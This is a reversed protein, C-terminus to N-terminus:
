TWTYLPNFLVCTIPVKIRNHRWFAELQLLNFVKGICAIWFSSCNHGPQDQKGSFCMMHNGPYFLDFGKMTKVELNFCMMHNGPYFLDFGKMTKVELNLSKLSKNEELALCLNSAAFDNIQSWFIFYRELIISWMDNIQSPWFIKAFENYTKQNQLIDLRNRRKFANLGDM